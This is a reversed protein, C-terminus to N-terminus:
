SRRVFQESSCGGNFVRRKRSVGFRQVVVVGRNEWWKTRRSTERLRPELVTEGYRLLKFRNKLEDLGGM